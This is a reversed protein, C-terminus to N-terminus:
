VTGLTAKARSATRTPILHGYGKGRVERRKTDPVATVAVNKFLVHASFAQENARQM